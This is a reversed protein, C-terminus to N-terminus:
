AEMIESGTVDCFSATAPNERKIAIKKPLAVTGTATQRTERCVRRRNRARLHGARSAGAQRSPRSCPPVAPPVGASGMKLHHGNALVKIQNPNPEVFIDRQRRQFYTARAIINPICDFDCFLMVSDGGFFASLHIKYRKSVKPM